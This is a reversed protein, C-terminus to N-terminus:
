CIDMLLIAQSKEKRMIDNDPKKTKSVGKELSLFLKHLILEKERLHKIYSGLLPM